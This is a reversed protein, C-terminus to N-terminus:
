EGAGTGVVAMTAGMVTMLSPWGWAGVESGAGGTGTAGVVVRTGLVVAGTLLTVIVVADAVIAGKVPAALAAEHFVSSRPTAPRKAM